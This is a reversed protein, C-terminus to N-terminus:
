ALGLVDLAWADEFARERWAEYRGSRGGHGGDVETKLLVGPAGDPAQARM